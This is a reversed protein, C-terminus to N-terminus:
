EDNSGKRNQPHGQAEWRQGASPCQAAKLEPINHTHPLSGSLCRLM